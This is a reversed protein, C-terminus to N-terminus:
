TDDEIIIYEDGVFNASALFDTWIKTWEEHSLKDDDIPLRLVTNCKTCQFMMSGYVNRFNEWGCKPCNYKSM